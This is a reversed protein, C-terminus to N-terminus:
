VFLTYHLQINLLYQTANKHKIDLGEPYMFAAKPFFAFFYGDHVIETDCGYILICKIRSKVRLHGHFIYETHVALLKPLDTKHERLFNM